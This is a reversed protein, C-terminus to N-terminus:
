FKMGAVNAMNLADLENGDFTLKSYSASHYYFEKNKLANTLGRIIEGFQKTERYEILAKEGSEFIITIQCDIKM